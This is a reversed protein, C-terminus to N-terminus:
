ERNRKLPQGGYVDEGATSRVVKQLNGYSDTCVVPLFIDDHGVNQTMYVTGGREMLVGERNVHLVNKSPSTSDVGSLTPKSSKITGAM